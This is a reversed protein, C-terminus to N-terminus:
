RTACDGCIVGRGTLRNKGRAEGSLLAIARGRALRGSASLRALRGAVFPAAYSTGRVRATGGAATAAILDAGPAAFDLHRARGAEILPRGRADIGTIAIVQPYSAPFAPPAAAGDNGVAAVMLVGRREAAAVARALLPNDPGALSINVVAVANATLWGLARAIALANGGRPDHGFVDAVFLRSQPSVGRVAGRGVLISAIATGHNGPMPAGAAFGRQVIGAPLAPHAAVGSDILGIPAGPGIAASAAAGGGPGAAAGSPQYLPNSQIATGTALKRLLREARALSMAEPTRLRATSIDLGEITEQDIVTFGASIAMELAQPSGDILILEGKVAPDGRADLELTEPNRRVLDRLREIRQRALRDIRGGTREVTDSLTNGVSEGLRGIGQSAQGIAGGVHPLLQAAAGGAIAVLATLAVMMRGIRM